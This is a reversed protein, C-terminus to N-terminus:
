LILFMSNTPDSSNTFKSTSDMYVFMEPSFAILAKICINSRSSSIRSASRIRFSDNVRSIVRVTILVYKVNLPMIPDGSVGRKAFTYMSLNSLSNSFDGSYGLTSM